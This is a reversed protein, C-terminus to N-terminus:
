AIEPRGLYCSGAGRDLYEELRRATRKEVAVATRGEVPLVAREAVPLAAREEVPLGTREEVPVATREEVPLGTRREVALAMRKGVPLAPMRAPEQREGTTAGPVGTQREVEKGLFGTRLRWSPPAVGERRERGRRIAEIVEKPLSDALRFTVFYVGGETEWHPLRGRSRIRKWGM